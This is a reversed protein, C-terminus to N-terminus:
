HYGEKIIKEHWVKGSEPEFFSVVYVGGSLPIDFHIFGNRSPSGYYLERGTMDTLRIHWQQMEEQVVLDGVGNFWATAPPASSDYAYPNYGFAWGLHNIHYIQYYADYGTISDPEMPTKTIFVLGGKDTKFYRFSGDGFRALTLWGPLAFVNIGNTVDIINQKWVTDNHINLLFCVPQVSSPKDINNIFNVGQQGIGIPLLLSLDSIYRKHYADFFGLTDVLGVNGNKDYVAYFPRKYGSPVIVLLREADAKSLWPAPSKGKPIASVTPQGIGVGSSQFKDESFMPKIENIRGLSDLLFFYYNKISLSTNHKRIIGPAIFRKEVSDIKFLGYIQISSDSFGDYYRHIAEGTFKNFIHFSYRSNESLLGSDSSWRPHVLVNNAYYIFERDVVVNSMAGWIPAVTDMLQHYSCYCTDFLLKGDLSLHAYYPQAGGSPYFFGFLYVGDKDEVIRLFQTFAGVNVNDYISDVATVAEIDGISFSWELKGYRNIKYLYWFHQLYFGGDSSETVDMLDGDGLMTYSYIKESEFSLTQTAQQAVSNLSSFALFSLLAIKTLKLWSRCTYKM